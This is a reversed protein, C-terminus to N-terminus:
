KRSEREVPRHNLAQALGAKNAFNEATSIDQRINTFRTQNLLSTRLTTSLMDGTINYTLKM